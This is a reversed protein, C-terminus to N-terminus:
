RRKRKRAPPVGADRALKRVHTATFPSWETVQTPQPGALLAAVVAGAMATSSEDREQKAAFYALRTDRVLILHPDTPEAAPKPHRGAHMVNHAPVEAKIAVREASLASPRDPYWDVTLRQVDPWWPQAAAHQKWRRGFNSSVGVYLLADSAEYLRYVATRESMTPASARRAPSTGACTPWSCKQCRAVKPAPRPLHRRGCTMLRVCTTSRRRAPPRAPCARIM